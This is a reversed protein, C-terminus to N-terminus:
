RAAHHLDGARIVLNGAPRLNEVTGKVVWTGAATDAPVGEMEYSSSVGAPKLLWKGEARALEGKVEVAASTAKTGDQEIMDRVQEIRVRNEVALHLKLTGHQVDVAASEVGRLRKMREPLSEMCSACGIGQFRFEMTVFQAACPAAALLALLFLRM